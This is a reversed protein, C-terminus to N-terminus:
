VTKIATPKYYTKFNLLTLGRVKNKNLTIDATRRRKDKWIFKLVLETIDLYYSAPIKVPIEKFTYIMPYLQTFSPLTTLTFLLRETRDSEKSGM